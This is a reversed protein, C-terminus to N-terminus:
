NVLDVYLDVGNADIINVWCCIVIQAHADEVGGTDVNDDINVRRLHREVSISRPSAVVSTIQIIDKAVNLVKHAIGVSKGKEGCVFHNIINIGSL